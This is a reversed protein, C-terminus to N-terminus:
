NKKKRKRNFLLISGIGGVGSIIVPKYDMQSDEKIPYATIEEGPSIYGKFTKDTNPGSIRAQYSGGNGHGVIAIKSVDESTWLFNGEPSVYTKLPDFIVPLGGIFGFRSGNLATAEVHAPSAIATYYGKNLIFNSDGMKERLTNAEYGNYTQHHFGKSDYYGIKYVLDYNDSAADILSGLGHTVLDLNAFNLTGLKSEAEFKGDKTEFPFDAKVNGSRDCVLLSGNTGEFDGKVKDHIIIKPNYVAEEYLHRFMNIVENESLPYLEVSNIRGFKLENPHNLKSISFGTNNFGLIINNNSKSIYNSGNFSKTKYFNNQNEIVWLNNEFTKNAVDIPKTILIENDDTIVSRVGEKIQCVEKLESGDREFVFTSQNSIENSFRHPKNYTTFTVLNNSSDWSVYTKCRTTRESMGPPRFTYYCENPQFKIPFKATREMDENIEYVEKEGNDKTVIETIINDNEYFKKNVIEIIELSDKDLFADLYRSDGSQVYLKDSFSIIGGGYSDYNHFVRNKDSIINLGNIKFKNITGNEPVYDPYDKAEEYQGAVGLTFLEKTNKDFSWSELSYDEKDSINVSDILTPNKMDSINLISVKNSLLLAYDFNNYKFTEFGYRSNFQNHYSSNYIEEYMALNELLPVNEPVDSRIGVTVPIDEMVIESASSDGKLLGYGLISIFPSFVSIAILGGVACYVYAKKATPSTLVEITSNMFNKFKSPEKAFKEEVISKQTIHQQTQIDANEFFDTFNPEKESLGLLDRQRLIINDLGALIQFDCVYDSYQKPKGTYEFKRSIRDFSFELKEKKARIELMKVWYQIDKAKSLM